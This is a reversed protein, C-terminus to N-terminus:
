SEPSSTIKDAQKEINDLMTVYSRAETGKITVGYLANLIFKIENLTLNKLTYKEM